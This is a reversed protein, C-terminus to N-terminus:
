RPASRSGGLSEAYLRRIEQLASNRSLAASLFHRLELHTRGERVDTQMVAYGLQDEAVHLPEIVLQMPKGQKLLGAPLLQGVPFPQPRNLFVVDNGRSELVVRAQRRTKSYTCLLFREFRLVRMVEGLVPALASIDPAGIISDALRSLERHVRQAGLLRHITSRAADELLRQNSSEEFPPSNVARQAGADAPTCGCSRRVVLPTAIMSAPEDTSEREIMRLLARAASLGQEYVPQRITTLSPSMFAAEEMDDFGVVAVDTPVQLGAAQLGEIAGIAMLDNAAVIADFHRSGNRRLQLVAERGSRAEYDGRVVLTPDEDLKFNTIALRYADLRRSGDVSEEPGAIFAIRKREHRKVLHAVAQFVGTEDNAAVSSAGKLDVGISVVPRGDQAARLLEPGSGRLTASLLIFGKLDPPLALADQDNRYFPAKPFGGVFFITHFGSAALKHAAGHLIPISYPDGFSNCLVGVAQPGLSAGAREENDTM